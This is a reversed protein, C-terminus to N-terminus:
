ESESESDTDADPNYDAPPDAQHPSDLGPAFLWDYGDFYRYDNGTGSTKAKKFPKPHHGGMVSRGPADFQSHGEFWPTFAAELDDYTLEPGDREVIFKDHFAKVGAKQTDTRDHTEWDPSPDYVKLQNTQEDRYTVTVAHLYSLAVPVHPERIWTWDALFAQKESYMTIATGDATEIRHTGDDTKRYYGCRGEPLEEGSATSEETTGVIPWEFTAIDDTAPGRTLEGHDDSVILTRSKLEYTTNGDGRRVLQRGDVAQVRDSGTYLEIRDELRKKYPEDLHNYGREVDSQEYVFIVHRGAAMAREANRLTKAPKTVNTSEAEVPTIDSDVEIGLTRIIGNTTIRNDPLTDTTQDVEEIDDGGESFVRRSFQGLSRHVPGGENEVGTEDSPTDERGEGLGFEAPTEIEIPEVSNFEPPNRGLVDRWPNSEWQLTVTRVFPKLQAELAPFWGYRDFEDKLIPEVTADGNMLRRHETRGFVIDKITDAERRVQRKGKYPTEKEYSYSARYSDNGDVHETYSTKWYPAALAADHNSVLNGDGFVHALDSPNGREVLKAFGRDGVYNDKPRYTACRVCMSYGGDEGSIIVQYIFPDHAQRFADFLVDLPSEKSNGPTMRNGDKVSYLRTTTVDTIGVPELDLHGIEATVTSPYRRKVSQKLKSLPRSYIKKTFSDLRSQTDSRGDLASPRPHLVFELGYPGPFMLIEVGAICSEGCVDSIVWMLVGHIDKPLEERKAPDRPLRIRIANQRQKPGGQLSRVMTPNDSVNTPAPLGDADDSGGDPDQYEDLSQPQISM